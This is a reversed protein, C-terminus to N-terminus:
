SEDEKDIIIDILEKDTFLHGYLKKASVFFMNKIKQKILDLTNKDM